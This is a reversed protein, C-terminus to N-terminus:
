GRQLCDVSHYWVNSLEADSLNSVKTLPHVRAKYLIEARYINGVGAIKSQDMLIDGIVAKQQSKTGYKTCGFFINKDADSRM